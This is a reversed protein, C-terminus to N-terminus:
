LRLAEEEVRRGDMKDEDLFRELLFARDIKLSRLSLLLKGENM